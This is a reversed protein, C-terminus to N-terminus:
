ASDTTPRSCVTPPRARMKEDGPDPVVTISSTGFGHAFRCGRAVRRGSCTKRRGAREARATRAAPSTRSLWPPRRRAVPIVMAAANMTSAWRMWAMASAGYKGSPSPGHGAQIASPTTTPTPTIERSEHGAHQGVPQVEHEEDPEDGRDPEVDAGGGAQEGGPTVGVAAAAAPATSMGTAAMRPLRTGSAVAETM